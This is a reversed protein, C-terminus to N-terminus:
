DRRKRCQRCKGGSPIRLKGPYIALSDALLCAIALLIHQETRAHIDVASREVSTVELIHTLIRIQCPLHNHRVNLLKLLIAHSCAHFVKREVILLLPAACDIHVKTVTGQILDIKRRELLCNLIATCPRYHTGVILNPTLMAAVVLTQKLIYQAPFPIEVAHNDCVPTACVVSLLSGEITKVYLHTGVGVTQGRLTRESIIIIIKGAGVTLHKLLTLHRHRGEIRLCAIYQAKDEAGRHVGVFREARYTRRLM